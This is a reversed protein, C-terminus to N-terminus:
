KKTLDQDPYIKELMQLIEELREKEKKSKPIFRLIGPENPQVSLGSNASILKVIKKPDGKFYEGSKFRVTFKDESVTEFGLNSALTRIKEQIIFSNVVEDPEGFRDA